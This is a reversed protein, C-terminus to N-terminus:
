STRPENQPPPLEKTFYTPPREEDRKQTIPFEEARPRKEPKTKKKAM